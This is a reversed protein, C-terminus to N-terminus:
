SAIAEKQSGNFENNVLSEVTPRQVAEATSLALLYNRFSYAAATVSPKGNSTGTRLFSSM